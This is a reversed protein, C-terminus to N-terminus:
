EYRLAVIPDVGAARRAPLYSALLAVAGLAASVFVFTAPDNSEVGYLLTGLVRTLGLALVVGFIIGLLSLVIARGLVLRLMDGRQAGLAMRVGIEASRQTVTQAMVGFIGVATLALALVAFASFLWAAVRTRWMADDVREEMTKIESLPLSSDLARVQSRIAAVLSAEDVGSRVFLRTRRFYSQEYPLYVDPRPEAAITRYRVDAVVGVVEAGDQFGGQGVAIMQGVATENPWFTRAATESVLVVRPQGFRDQDNFLRGQRLGVRLAPFYDPSVWHIGVVPGAM